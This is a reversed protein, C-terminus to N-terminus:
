AKVALLFLTVMVVDLIDTILPAGHVGTAFVSWLMYSQRLFFILFALFVYRFRPHRDRAYSIGALVLLALAICELAGHIFLEPAM